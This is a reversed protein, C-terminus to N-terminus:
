MRNTIVVMQLLINPKISDILRNLNIKPSQRLLVYDPKFSKINYIGLSDIVLLKKTNLIYVSQLTDEHITKIHNGVTYDKIIKTKLKAISDLDSAVTINKNSSNGLLTYRSKHFIIFQNEPTNYNTYIIASQVILISILFWKLALFSRKVYFRVLFIIFVYSVFVYLLSFPIDKFLFNEQKSIWGVFENMLSIIYGYGTALFQPLMNLVALLILLIGFGLILGLLPIIVLNSLFFLSPFQHFYYLSLPIIGFQASVTVTLTHWLKDPLWYKVKWLKYLLPDIAVIAFVALYSLQFGVDFLFMPKFLLIILM